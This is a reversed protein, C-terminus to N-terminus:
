RRSVVWASGRLKCAFRWPGRGPMGRGGLPRLPAPGGCMRQGVWPPRAPWIQADLGCGQALIAASTSAPTCVICTTHISHRAHLWTGVAHVLLTCNHGNGCWAQRPWLPLPPIVTVDTAHQQKHQPSSVTPLPVWHRTFMGPCGWWSPPPALSCGVSYLGRNARCGM